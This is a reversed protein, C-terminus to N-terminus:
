ITDCHERLHKERSGCLWTLLLPCKQQLCTDIPREMCKGLKHKSSKLPHMSSPKM